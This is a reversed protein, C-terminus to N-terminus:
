GGVSCSSAATWPREAKPFLINNELHVHRHLDEEFERLEELTVRFTTCADPPATYDSTVARINFMLKGAEEHENELMALPTKIEPMIYDNEGRAAFLKETEIIHPFVVTEEKLLHGVMEDQLAAFLRFAEKMFPFRDGHKSAVKELHAYIVPMSQKIYFHHTVEIYGILQEASMEDFPMHKGSAGEISQLERAIASADLGKERCADALTRKGKCCFDLAHKEFVPVAHHNGTVITALTKQTIDTM